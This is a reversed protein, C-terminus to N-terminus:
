RSHGILRLILGCEAECLLLLGWRVVCPMIGRLLGGVGEESLAEVMTARMSGGAAARGKADGGERGEGGSPIGTYGARTWEDAPVSQIRTKVVDFPFTSLWGAIGALGGALLLTQTSASASSPYSALRCM